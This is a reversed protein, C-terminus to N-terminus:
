YQGSWGGHSSGSSSQHSGGGSSGGSSDTSEPRTYSTEYSRLFDDERRTLELPEAYAGAGTQVRVSKLAAKQRLMVILSVLTGLVLAILGVYGMKPPLFDGDYPRGDLAQSYFKESQDAYVLFAKYYNDKGLKRLIPGEFAHRAGLRFANIGSGCTSIAYDRDETSVLLLIGDRDEGWGWGLSDYLDDAYETATKGELSTVTAAVIDFELKRSLKDLKKELKKEQKETLLEAQDLVRGQSGEAAAAVGPLVLAALVALCLCLSLIRKKM